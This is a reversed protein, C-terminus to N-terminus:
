EGQPDTVLIDEFFWELHTYFGAANKHGGGGHQKALESVDFDGNSRISCYVKGDARLTWCLGFTGSSNALEHGVDSSYQPACCAALGKIHKKAAPSYLYAGTTGYDLIQKVAKNHARELAQGEAELSDLKDESCDMWDDLTDPTMPYSYIARVIDKTDEYNFVWRDYDDVYRVVWPSSANPYFHNWTIMAGSQDTRLTILDTGNDLSFPLTIPGFIKEAEEIATKHHDLWYVNLTDRKFLSEMLPARFSFDLIYLNKIKDIEAEVEPPLKGSEYSCPIYTVDKTGLASAAVVASIFGDACNSHYLVVTQNM